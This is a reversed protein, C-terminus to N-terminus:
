DPSLCSRDARVEPGPTLRRVDDGAPRLVVHQAVVLGLTRWLQDGAQALPHDGCRRADLGGLRGGCDPLETGVRDDSAPQEYTGWIAASAAPRGSNPSIPLM